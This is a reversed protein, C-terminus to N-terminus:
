RRIIPTNHRRDPRATMKDIQKQVAGVAASRKREYQGIKIRIARASRDNEMKNRSELPSESELSSSTVIQTVIRDYKAVNVCSRFHLIFLQVM